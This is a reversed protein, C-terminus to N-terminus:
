SVQVESFTLVRSHTYSWKYFECSVQSTQLLSRNLSVSHNVVLVPDELHVLIELIREELIRKLLFCESQLQPLSRLHEFEQLSGLGLEELRAAALLSLHRQLLIQVQLEVKM